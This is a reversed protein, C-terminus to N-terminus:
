KEKPPLPHEWLQKHSGDCYPLKGSTRCTCWAITKGSEEVDVIDPRLDSGAHSGDCFPANGTKGCACIAHKGPGLNEIRPSPDQM